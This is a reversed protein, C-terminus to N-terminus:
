STYLKPVRAASSTATNTNGASPVATVDTATLPRGSRPLGHTPMSGPPGGPWGYRQARPVRAGSGLQAVEVLSSTRTDIPVTGAPVVTQTSPRTVVVVGPSSM